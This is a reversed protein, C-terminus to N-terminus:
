VVMDRLAPSIALPAATKAQVEAPTLGPALEELLLGTPTVRIWALETVIDHVVRRGTLPLTCEALIKPSGDKATHEM